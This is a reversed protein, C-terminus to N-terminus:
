LITKKDGKTLDRRRLFVFDPLRVLFHRETVSQLADPAGYHAYLRLSFHDQEVATIQLTLVACFARSRKRARKQAFLFFQAAIRECLDNFREAAADKPSVQPFRVCISYFGDGDGSCISREWLPKSLFKGARRRTGRPCSEFQAKKAKVAKM